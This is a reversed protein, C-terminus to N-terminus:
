APVRADSKAPPTGRRATSVLEEISLPEDHLYRGNEDPGDLFRRRREILVGIVFALEKRRARRWPYSRLHDLQVLGGSAVSGYFHALVDAGAELLPQARTALDNSREQDAPLLSRGYEFWTASPSWWLGLGRTIQTVEFGGLAAYFEANELVDLEALLQDGISAVYGRVRTMAEYASRAKASWPDRMSGFLGYLELRQERRPPGVGQYLEIHALEIVADDSWLQNL